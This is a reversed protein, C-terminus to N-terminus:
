LNNKKGVQFLYNNGFKLEHEYKLILVNSRGHTEYTKLTCSFLHIQFHNQTSRYTDLIFMLVYEDNGSGVM